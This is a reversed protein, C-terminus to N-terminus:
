RQWNLESVPKLLEEENDSFRYGGIDDLLLVSITMEYEESHITHEVVEEDFWIGPPLRVGDRSTFSFSEQAALSREPVPITNNRTSFFRGSKLAKQTSKAWLMFGERSAVALVRKPTFELWKLVAATLSVGYREACHGMLDFSFKQREVQKRFDHIPMLLTAAFENAEEEMRAYDTGYRLMDDQSCEIGDPGSNERHLLYHGLEHALTFRIRGPNTISTNYIIGWEPAEKRPILAGEMGKLDLGEVLTIPDKNFSPTLEKAVREVNVPFREEIPLSVDLIKTIRNAEANPRKKETVEEQEM